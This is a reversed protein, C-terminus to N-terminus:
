KSKVPAAPKKVTSTAAPKNNLLNGQTETKKKGTSANKTNKATTTGIIAKQAKAAAKQERVTEKTYAGPTLYGVYCSNNNAYWQAKKISTFYGARAIVKGGNEQKDDLIVYIKKM